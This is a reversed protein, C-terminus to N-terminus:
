VEVGRVQRLLADEELVAHCRYRGAPDRGGTKTCCLVGSRCMWICAIGTLDGEPVTFQLSPV